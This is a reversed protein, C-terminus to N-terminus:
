DSSNRFPPSFTPATLTPTPRTRDGDWILTSNGATLGTHDLVQRGRAQRLMAALEELGIAQGIIGGPIRSAHMRDGRVHDRDPKDHAAQLKPGGKGAVLFYVAEQKTERHVALRFRDALLSRMM